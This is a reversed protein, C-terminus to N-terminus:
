QNRERPQQRGAGRRDGPRFGAQRIAVVPYLPGGMPQWDFSGALSLSALQNHWGAFRDGDGKKPSTATREVAPEGRPARFAPHRRGGDLPPYAGPRWNSDRCSNGAALCPHFDHYLIFGALGSGPCLEPILELRPVSLKSLQDFLVTFDRNIFAALLGTREGFLKKGLRYILWLSWAAILPNVWNQLGLREGFSLLVPFGLPYKGFRWGQYDIVFPM